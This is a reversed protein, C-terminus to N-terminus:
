ERYTIRTMTMNSQVILIQSEEWVHCWMSRNYTIQGKNRYGSFLCHLMHFIASLKTSCQESLLTQASSSQPGSGATRAATGNNGSTADPWCLPWPWELPWQRRRSHGVPFRDPLKELVDTLKYLIHERLFSISTTKYHKFLRFSFLLVKYKM